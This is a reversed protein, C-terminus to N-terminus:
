RRWNNRSKRRKKMTTLAKSDTTANERLRVSKGTIVGTSAFANYNVLILCFVFCLLCIKKIKKM